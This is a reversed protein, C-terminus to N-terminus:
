HGSTIFLVGLAIIIALVSVVFFGTAFTGSGQPGRGAREALRSVIKPMGMPGLPDMSDRSPARQSGPDFGGAGSPGHGSGSHGGAAHGGQHGDTLGGGGGDHM